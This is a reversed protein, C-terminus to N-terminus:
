NLTTTISMNTESYTFTMSGTAKINVRIYGVYVVNHKWPLKDNIYISKLNYVSVLKIKVKQFSHIRRTEHFGWYFVNKSVHDTQIVERQSQKPLQYLDLDFLTRLHLEFDLGM